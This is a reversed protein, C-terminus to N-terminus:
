QGSTSFAARRVQSLCRCGAKAADVMTAIASPCTLTTRVVWLARVEDQAHLAPFYLTLAAALVAVAHRLGATPM